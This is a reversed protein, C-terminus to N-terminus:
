SLIRHHICLFFDFCYHSQANNLECMVVSWVPAQGVDYTQSGGGCVYHHKTM